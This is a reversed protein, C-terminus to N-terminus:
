KTVGGASFDSDSLQCLVAPSLCVNRPSEYHSIVKEHYARALVPRANVGTARPTANLVSRTLSSRLMIPTPSLSEVRPINPSCAPRTMGANAERPTKIQLPPIPFNGLNAILYWLSVPIILYRETYFM